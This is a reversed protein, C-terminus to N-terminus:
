IFGYSQLYKLLKHKLEKKDRLYSHYVYEFEDLASKRQSKKSYQIEKIDYLGDFISKMNFTSITNAQFKIPSSEPLGDFRFSQIFTIVEGGYKNSYVSSDLNKVFESHLAQFGCQIDISNQPSREIDLVQLILTNFYLEVSIRLDENVGPTLLGIRDRKGITHFTRGEIIPGALSPIDEGTFAFDSDILIVIYEENEIMKLIKELGMRIAGWKGLPTDSCLITIDKKTATKIEQIPVNIGQIILIIEHELPISKITQIVLGLDQKVDRIYSPILVITKM